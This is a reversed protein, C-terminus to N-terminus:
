KQAESKNGEQQTARGQNVRAQKAAKTAAKGALDLVVRGKYRGCVPCARHSVKPAGCECYQLGQAKLAHHARHQGTQSRNHRMRVVMFFIYCRHSLFVIRHIFVASRVFGFSPTMCRDAYTKGRRSSCTKSPCFLSPFAAPLHVPQPPLTSFPSRTTAAARRSNRSSDSSCTASFCRM